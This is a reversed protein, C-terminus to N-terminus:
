SVPRAFACKMAFAPGGCPSQELSLRRDCAVVARVRRGSRLAPTTRICAFEPAHEALLTTLFIAVHKVARPDPTQEPPLSYRNRRAAARANVGEKKREEEKGGREKERERENHMAVCSATSRAFHVRMPFLFIHTFAVAPRNNKSLGGLQLVFCFFHRVCIPESDIVRSLCHQWDCEAWKENSVTM